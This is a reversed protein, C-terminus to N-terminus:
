KASPMKKTQTVTDTVTTKPHREVTSPTVYKGTIASRTVQSTKKKTRTARADGIHDPQKSSGDVSASRRAGAAVM